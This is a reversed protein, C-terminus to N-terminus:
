LWYIYIERKHVEREFGKKAEKQTPLRFFISSYDNTGSENVHRCIQNGM